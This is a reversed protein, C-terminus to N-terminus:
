AVSVSRKAGILEAYVKRISKLMADQSFRWSAYNYANEVIKKRLKRDRSLQQVYGAMERSDSTESLMGSVGHEIIEPIAGVATSVIPVKLFMAELALLPMGEWRSTMVLVDLKAIYRLACEHQLNGMLTIRNGLGRRKVDGLIKEELEGGGAMLFDTEPLQEAIDLFLEPNKQDVLRGIFGVGIKTSNEGRAAPPHIGKFIVSHPKKKPLLNHRVALQCDSQAVFIVHSMQRMAYFEECWDLCRSMRTNRVHKWDHVTYVTPIKKRVFNLYFAASGGHCHILDPQTLEIAERVYTVATRHWRPGSFDGCFVEVGLESAAKGLYSNSSTLLVQRIGRGLGKLLQLVHHAEGGRDGATVFQLIKM